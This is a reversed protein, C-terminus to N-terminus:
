LFRIFVKIQVVVQLHINMAVNNLIILVYFGFHGEVSLCIFPIDM